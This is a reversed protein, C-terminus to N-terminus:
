VGNPGESQFSKFVEISKDLSVDTNEKKVTAFLCENPITYFRDAFSPRESSTIFVVIQKFLDPLTAAVERRVEFDLPAAPTDVIFPFDHPSQSFLTSLFAYAISLKQGESVGKRDSLSLCNGINSIQIDKSNLIKEIKENSKVLINAKLRELSRENILKLIERLVDAQDKLKVTNTAVAYDKRLESIRKNCLDINVEWTLGRAEQEEKRDENLIELSGTVENLEINWKEVQSSLQEIIDRSKTKKDLQFVQRENLKKDRNLSRLKDVLVSLNEREALNKIKSKIANIESINDETLYERAKERIAIREKDGIPRKCVCEPCEALEEFFEKSQTKPLKLKGMQGSLTILKLSIDESLNNPIRISSLLKETTESIQEEFRTGQEKLRTYQTILEEDQKRYADIQQKNKFIQARLAEARLDRGEKESVLQNKHEIAHNLKTELARKGQATKVGEMRQILIKDITGGDDYLQLLNDLHYLTNIAEVASTSQSSLLRGALEGDFVFLRVFNKGLWAEMESGLKLGSVEGNTERSSTTYTATGTEYDFRITVVKIKGDISLKVQFKGSKAEPDHPPKFSVVDYEKLDMAGKNFCYRILEMTTTKGTGNPMQILSIHKPWGSNDCLDITLNRMERINEYHIELLNIKM